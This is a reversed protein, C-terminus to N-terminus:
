IDQGFLTKLIACQIKDLATSITPAETANNDENLVSTQILLAEELINKHFASVIEKM